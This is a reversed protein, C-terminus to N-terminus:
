CTSYLARRSLVLYLATSSPTDGAVCAFTKCVVLSTYAAVPPQVASLVARTTTKAGEQKNHRCAVPGKGVGPHPQSALGPPSFSVTATNEFIDTHLHLYAGPSCTGSKFTGPSNAWVRVRLLSRPTRQTPHPHCILSTLSHNPTPEAAQGTRAWGPTPMAQAVSNEQLTTQGWADWGQGASPTGEPVAPEPRAAQIAETSLCSPGMCSFM